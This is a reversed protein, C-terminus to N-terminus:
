PVSPWRLAEDRMWGRSRKVSLVNFDEGLTDPILRTMMCEIGGISSSGSASLEAGRNVGAPQNLM